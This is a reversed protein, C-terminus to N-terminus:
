AHAGSKADVAHLVGNHAVAYVLRGDTVPRTYVAGIEASWGPEGTVAEFAHLAKDDGVLLSGGVIIPCSLFATETAKLPRQWQPEADKAKLALIERKGVAYVLGAAAYPWSLLRGTVAIHGISSAWLQKGDGAKLAELNQEQDLAYVQGDSVAPAFVYPFPSRASKWRLKGTAADLAHIRFDASTIYVTGDAVTPTSYVAGGTAASWRKVGTVADLAYVSKDESGVYVLGDAVVPDRPMQITPATWRNSGDAANLAMLGTRESAVYVLGAAAAPAGLESGFPKSWKKTGTAADVAFLESGVTVYVLGDSLAPSNVSPEGVTLKWPTAAPPAGPTAPASPSAQSSGAPSSKANGAPTEGSGSGRTALVAAAAGGAAAAATIGLWLATRRTVPKRPEPSALPEPGEGHAGAPAAAAASRRDSSDSGGVDNTADTREAPPPVPRPTNGSRPIRPATATAEMQAWVTGSSSPSSSPDPPVAAWPGSSAAPAVHTALGHLMRAVDAASDPRDEPAKALLHLVLDDIAAPIGPRSAGPPTPAQYLHATMAAVPGSASDFPQSGTLFEHLVCGLSYLDSRGDGPRLDFREPAMYAFTGMIQSSTETGAMFRAIGFDLVKITGDRLCMLNAPKLDRHVIGAEHAAALAAATQAAWDLAVPVPPPGASKLLTALDRGDVFEMVLFMADSDPDQGLDHVTVVGPHNLGGATRAERFFLDSAFRDQHGTPLLKVAVRRGILRDRGEWVEGMGGRGLLGVLEYRDVLM